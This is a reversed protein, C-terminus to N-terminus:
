LLCPICWVLVTDLRMCCVCCWNKFRREVTKSVETKVQWGGDLFGGPRWPALGERPVFQKISKRPVYLPDHVTAETDPADGSDLATPDRWGFGLGSSDTYGGGTTNTYTLKYIITIAATATATIM